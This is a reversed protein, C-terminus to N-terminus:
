PEDRALDDKVIRKALADQRKLRLVDYRSSHGCADFFAKALRREKLDVDAWVLREGDFAPPVVYIGSPNIVSSGGIAVQNVYAKAWAGSKVSEPAYPCCNVVFTGNQIAYARTIPEIDCYRAEKNPTKDGLHRTLEWWGPWVSCHIEEGLQGMAAGLLGLHHEYCILAGVRGIDLDCALIDEEGGQGWYVRESHTPMLKRRCALLKGSRSIILQANYMTFEGVGRSLENTGAVCNVGWKRAAECLRDIEPSPVELASEQLRALYDISESMSESGRWYPYASFFTEPFIVLDVGERGALELWHEAKEITGLLDFFEPFTQAAAVRVKRDELV